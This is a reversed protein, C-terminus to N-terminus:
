PRKSAYPKLAEYKIGDGLGTASLVGNVARRALVGVRRRHLAANLEYAAHVRQSGGITKGSRRVASLLEYPNVGETRASHEVLGARQALARLGARSFLQLHEPPGVLSWRVGLLRSSIGRAHPTTIFAVGGPRLLVAVRRMLAAADAVHELVEVVSIVDYADAPLTLDELEGAMVTFGRARLREVAEPAVETGHAEWGAAAAAQLLVGAGCGVDLWRNTQRFGAFGGVIEALRRHVIEPVELNGEHYYGAYDDAVSEPIASVYLSRCERCRRIEHGSKREIRDV